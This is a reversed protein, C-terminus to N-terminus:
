NSEEATEDGEDEAEVEEAPPQDAVLLELEIVCVAIVMVGGFVVFLVAAWHLFVSEAMIALLTLCVAMVAYVILIKLTSAPSVILHPM